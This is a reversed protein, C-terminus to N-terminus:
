NQQNFVFFHKKKPSSKIEFVKHGIKKLYNIDKIVFTRSLSYVICSTRKRDM